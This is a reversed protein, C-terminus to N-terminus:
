ASISRPRYDVTHLAEVREELREIAERLNELRLRCHIQQEDESRKPYAARLTQMYEDRFLGFWSRLRKVGELDHAESELLNRIQNSSQSLVVTQTACM